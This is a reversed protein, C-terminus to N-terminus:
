VSDATKRRIRQIQPRVTLNRIVARPPLHLAYMVTDAVDDALLRSMEDEGTTFDAHRYLATETMDPEITIARVGWKRAEDFLSDAFSSLGAKSAAYAAAHAGSLHATVSSIFVFTGQRKKMDRLLHQTLILPAELNVRLIEQIRAPRVEEHLGYYAVGANHVVLDLPHKEQIGDILRLLADTDRLDCLCPHFFDSEKADEAFTRGIGWVEYGDRVLHQSITRGIGSSAGTVLAQKM